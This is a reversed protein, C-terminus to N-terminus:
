GLNNKLIHEWATPALPVPKLPRVEAPRWNCRARYRAEAERYDARAYMVTWAIILVVTPVMVGLLWPPAPKPGYTILGGFVKAMYLGFLAIYWRVYPRPNM